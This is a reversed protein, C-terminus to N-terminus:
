RQINTHGHEDIDIIRRKEGGSISVALWVIGWLGFTVLTLFLHLRHKPRKGRLLVAQFRSQAKITWGARVHDALARALLEERKEPTSESPAHAQRVLQSRQLASMM